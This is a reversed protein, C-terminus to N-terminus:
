DVKISFSLNNGDIIHRQKSDVYMGDAGCENIDLWISIDQEGQNNYWEYFSKAQKLTKFGKITVTYENDM